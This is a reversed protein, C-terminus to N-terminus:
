AAGEQGFVNEVINEVPELGLTLEKHSPIPHPEVPLELVQKGNASANAEARAQGSRLGGLRGAASRKARKEEVEAKTPNYDLYNKVIFGHGPYSVWLDASVLEHVHKHSAKLRAKLGRITAESLLGDTLNRACHHLGAMHLRYARDSLGEIKAHSDMGDDM